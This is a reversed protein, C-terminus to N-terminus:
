LRRASHAGSGLVRCRMRASLGARKNPNPYAAFESSSTFLRSNTVPRMAKGANTRGARASTEAMPPAVLASNALRAGGRFIPVGGPATGIGM